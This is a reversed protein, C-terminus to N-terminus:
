MEECFEHFKVNAFGKREFPKNKVLFEKWVDSFSLLEVFSSL